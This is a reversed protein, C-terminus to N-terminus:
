KYNKLIASYDAHTWGRPNFIYIRKAARILTTSEDTSIGISGNCAEVPFNGHEQLYHHIAEKDIGMRFLMPVAEDVPLGKIWDDYICWSALAIISLAISSPLQEHLKNLLESYFNRETVAADFDIQIRALDERQTLELIESVVRDQQQVSLLPPHVKDIDIRVVAILETEAPVKLPQLRPKSLVIEGKLLLSKALYAVGTKQPDIFELKEPREWAWLIVKKNLSKQKAEWAEVHPALISMLMIIMISIKTNNSWM